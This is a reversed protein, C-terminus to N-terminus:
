FRQHKSTILYHVMYRIGIALGLMYFSITLSMSAKTTSFIHQLIPMAPLYINATLISLFALTYILTKINKSM